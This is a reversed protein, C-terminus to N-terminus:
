SLLATLDANSMRHPKEVIHRAHAKWGRAELVRLGEAVKTPWCDPDLLLVGHPNESQNRIDSAVAHTLLHGLLAVARFGLNTLKYASWINEVFITELSGNRIGMPLSYQLAWSETPVRRIEKDKSRTQWGVQARRGQRWNYWPYYILESFPDYQLGQRALIPLPM